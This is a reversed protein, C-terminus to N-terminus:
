SEDEILKYTILEADVVSSVQQMVSVIANDLCSAERTVHIAVYGKRGLGLLSDDLGAEYLQNCVEWPTLTPDAFRYLMEFDYEKM